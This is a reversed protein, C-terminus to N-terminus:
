GPRATSGRQVLRWRGAARQSNQKGSKGAVLHERPPIVTSLLLGHELCCALSQIRQATACAPPWESRKGPDRGALAADRRGEFGADVFRDEVKLAAVSLCERGARVHM